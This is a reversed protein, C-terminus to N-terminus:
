ILPDRNDLEEQRKWEEYEIEDLEQQAEELERYAKDLEQKAEELLQYELNKQAEHIADQSATLAARAIERAQEARDDRIWGWGFAAACIAALTWDDKTM